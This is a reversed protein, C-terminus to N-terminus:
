EGEQQMQIPRHSLTILPISGFHCQRVEAALAHSAKFNRSADRPISERSVGRKSGVAMSLSAWTVHLSWMSTSLTVARLEWIVATHPGVRAMQGLRAKLYCCACSVVWGAGLLAWTVQLVM